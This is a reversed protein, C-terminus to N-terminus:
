VSISNNFNQVVTLRSDFDAFQHTFTPSNFGESYLLKLSQRHEIRPTIGEGSTDNSPTVGV